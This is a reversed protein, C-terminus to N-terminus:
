LPTRRSGVPFVRLSLRRVVPGDEVANEVGVQLASYSWVHLDAEHGFIERYLRLRILVVPSRARAVLLDVGAPSIRRVIVFFPPFQNELPRPMAQFLVAARFHLRPIPFHPVLRIDPIPASGGFLKALKM